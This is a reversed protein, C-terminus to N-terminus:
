LVQVSSQYGRAPGHHGALRVSTLDDILGQVGFAMRHRCVKTKAGERLMLLASEQRRDDQYYFDKLM